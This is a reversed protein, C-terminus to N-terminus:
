GGSWQPTRTRTRTLHRCSYARRGSDAGQICVTDRKGDKSKAISTDAKPVLVATWVGVTVPQLRQM